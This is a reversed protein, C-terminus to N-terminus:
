YFSLDHLDTVGCPCSRWQPFFRLAALAGSPNSLLPGLFTKLSFIVASFDSFCFSLMLSVFAFFSLLCPTYMPVPSCLTHQTAFFCEILYVQSTTHLAEHSVSRIGKTSLLHKGSSDLCSFVSSYAMFPSLQRVVGEKWLVHSFITHIFSIVDLFLSIIWLLHLDSDPHPGLYVGREQSRLRRGWVIGESTLGRGWSPVSVTHVLVLYVCAKHHIM